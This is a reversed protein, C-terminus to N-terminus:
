GLTLYNGLIRNLANLVGLAAARRPDDGAVVAGVFYRPPTGPRYLSVVILEADFARVQKVGALRVRADEPLLANVADLAAAAATRIEIPLSHDGSVHAAYEAGSWELRVTFGVRQESESHRELGVFRVRSRDNPAARYLPLVDVGDDSVVERAAQLVTAADADRRLLLWAETASPGVLVREVGDVQELRHQLDAVDRQVNVSRQLKPPRAVM